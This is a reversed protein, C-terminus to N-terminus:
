AKRTQRPSRRYDVEKGANRAVLRHDELANGRGLIQGAQGEGDEIREIAVIVAVQQPQFADTTRFEWNSPRRWRSLCLSVPGRERNRGVSGANLPFDRVLNDRFADLAITAVGVSAISWCSLSSLGFAQGSSSDAASSKRAAAARPVSDHRCRFRKGGAPRRCGDSCRHRRRRASAGAPARASESPTLASSRM